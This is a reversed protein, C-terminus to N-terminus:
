PPAGATNLPTKTRCSIHLTESAPGERLTGRAHSALIIGDLRRLLVSSQPGLDVAEFFREVFGPDLSAVITGAFSGDPHRLRRSIQITWKGSLRGTVPKGIFLDDTTADVQALFHERDGVYVGEFAKDPGLQTSRMTFGDTSVISMQLTLDGIISTRPTWERLDFHAPDREYAQRLLLMARDIGKFASVISEEFLRALNDAQQTAGAVTKSHEISLVYTLGLWCAAIMMLGLLTAPQM